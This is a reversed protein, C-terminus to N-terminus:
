KEGAVIERTECLVSFIYEVTHVLSLCLLTIIKVWLNCAPFNGAFLSCATLLCDTSFFFNNLNRHLLNPSCFDMCNNFGSPLLVWCFTQIKLHTLSSQPLFWLRTRFSSFWKCSGLSKWSGPEAIVCAYPVINPFEM